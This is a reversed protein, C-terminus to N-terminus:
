EVGLINMAKYAARIKAQRAGRMVTDQKYYEGARQANIYDLLMDRMWRQEEHNFNENQNFKINDRNEEHRYNKDM